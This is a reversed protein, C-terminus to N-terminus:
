GVKFHWLKKIKQGFHFGHFTAMFYPRFMRDASKQVKRGDHRGSIEARGFFHQNQGIFLKGGKIKKLFNKKHFNKNKKNLTLVYTKIGTIM